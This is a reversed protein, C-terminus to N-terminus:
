VNKPEWRNIYDITSLAATAGHGASIIIQKYPIDTVDGAAFVGACTTECRLSVEIEGQKNKKGCTVFDSNPIMGIHVMVGDTAIETPENTVTDEYRLGTVFDTGLIDTTNANYIIEVNELAKVKNILVTEAKPFGGQTKPDDPYKTVLYVKKAIGAMMLASEVAANGAGITATTKGKYLPGDCVTCYTIGKHLLAGEGPISLHRPHIGSAIIVAKTRYQKEKSGYTAHVIHINEEQTIKTVEHGNKIDVNYSEAHKQFQAALEVGNTHEIGLWNDVDGSRSVEGGIDMSVVVFNLNRRAAYISASLGAASAGIIVLDLLDNHEKSM